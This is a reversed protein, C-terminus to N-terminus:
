RSGSALAATRVVAEHAEDKMKYQHCASARDAYCDRAEVQYKRWAAQDGVSWGNSLRELKRQGALHARAKGVMSASAEGRTRVYATGFVGAQIMKVPGVKAWRKRQFRWVDAPALRHGDRWGTSSSSAKVPHLMPSKLSPVVHTAEALMACGLDDPALPSGIRCAM